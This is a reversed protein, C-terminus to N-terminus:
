GYYVGHRVKEATEAGALAEVLKLGFDFASGAAQGTIIAGDQVVRAGAPVQAGTLGAELGPYCVAKKGELLGWRGLLTPAACIAAAKGGRALQKRVLAAVRDDKGLNEVGVSGGPLMILEARSVDVQELELDAQVTIGHSGAVTQGRLATLATEIGGRRLLDAPVLAEAEEFGPALLIYVM